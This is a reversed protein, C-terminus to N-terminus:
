AVEDSGYADEITSLYKDQEFYWNKSRYTLFSNDSPWPLEYVTEASQMERFCSDLQLLIPPNLSELLKGAESQDRISDFISFEPFIGAFNLLSDRIPKSEMSKELISVVACKNAKDFDRRLM